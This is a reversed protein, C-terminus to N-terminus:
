PYFTTILFRNDTGTLLDPPRRQLAYDVASSAWVKEDKSLFVSWAKFDTTANVVYSSIFAISRILYLRTGDLLDSQRINENFHVTGNDTLVDVRLRRMSYVTLVESGNLAQCRNLVLNRIQSHNLLKRFMTTANASSLSRCCVITRYDMSTWYIEGARSASEAEETIEEVSKNVCNCHEHMYTTNFCNVNEPCTCNESRDEYMLMYLSKGTALNFYIWLVFGCCFINGKMKGADNVTIKFM